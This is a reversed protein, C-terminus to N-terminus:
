LPTLDNGFWKNDKEFNLDHYLTSQVLPPDGHVDNAQQLSNLIQDTNRVCSNRFTRKANQSRDPPLLEVFFISISSLGLLNM